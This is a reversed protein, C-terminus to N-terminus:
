SDKNNVIKEEKNLTELKRNNKNDLRNVLKMSKSWIKRFIKLIIYPL